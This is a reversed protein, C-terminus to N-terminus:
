PRCRRRMRWRALRRRRRPCATRSSPPAGSSRFDGVPYRDTALPLWSGPQAAPTGRLSRASSPAPSPSRNEARDRGALQQRDAISHGVARKVRTAVIKERGLRPKRAEDRDGLTVDRGPMPEMETAGDCRDRVAGRQNRPRARHEFVQHGRQDHARRRSAQQLLGIPQDYPPLDGIARREAQRPADRFRCVVDAVQFQGVLIRVETHRAEAQLAAQPLAGNHSGICRRKGAHDIRGRRCAIKGPKSADACATAVPEIFCQVIRRASQRLVCADRDHTGEHSVMLAHRNHGDGICEQITRHAGPEMGFRHHLRGFQQQLLPRRAVNRHNTRPFRICLRIANHALVSRMASSSQCCCVSSRNGGM